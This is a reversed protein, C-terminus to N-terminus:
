CARKLSQVEGKLADISLTLENLNNQLWCVGLYFAVAVIASYLMCTTVLIVTQHRNKLQNIISAANAGYVEIAEPATPQM